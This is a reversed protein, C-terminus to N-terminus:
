SSDTHESVEGESRDNARTVQGTSGDIRIRWGTKILRTARGTGVVCPLHRQRAVIAAHCLMGGADTVIGAARSLTHILEPRTAPAVLIARAPLRRYDSQRRAVFAPGVAVGPCAGIGAVLADPSVAEPDFGADESSLRSAELVERLRRSEQHMYARPVAFEIHLSGVAVDLAIIRDSLELSEDPLALFYGRKPRPVYARFFALLPVVIELQELLRRRNRDTCNKQYVGIRRYTEHLAPLLQEVQRAFEKRIRNM